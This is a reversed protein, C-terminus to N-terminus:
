YAAAATAPACNATATATAASSTPPAPTAPALAAPSSWEGDAHRVNINHLDGCTAHTAAAFPPADTAAAAAAAPSPLATPANSTATTGALM